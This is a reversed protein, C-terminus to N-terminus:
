GSTPPSSRPSSACCGSGTSAARPSARSPRLARRPSAPSTPTVAGARGAEATVEDSRQQLKALEAKNDSIKNNTLVIGLVALLVVALGGIVAYSFIQGGRGALRGKRYDKPVLNVSKM